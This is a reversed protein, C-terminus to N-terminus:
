TSIPILVLLSSSCRNEGDVGVALGDASRAGGDGVAEKVELEPHRLVGFTRSILPSLASLPAEAFTLSSAAPCGSVAMSRGIPFLGEQPGEQGSRGQAELGEQLQIDIVGFSRFQMWFVSVEEEARSLGSWGPESPRQHARPSHGFVM